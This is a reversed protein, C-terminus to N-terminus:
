FGTALSSRLDTTQSLAKVCTSVDNGPTAQVESTQTPASWLSILFHRSSHPVSRLCLNLKPSPQLTSLTHALAHHMCERLWTTLLMHKLFNVLLHAARFMHVCPHCHGGGEGGCVSVCACVCVCVCVCVCM